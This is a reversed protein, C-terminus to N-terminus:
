RGSGAFGNTANAPEYEDNNGKVHTVGDEAAHPKVQHTPSAEMYQTVQPGLHKDM